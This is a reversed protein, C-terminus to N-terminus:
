APLDLLRELAARDEGDTAVGFRRELADLAESATLEEVLERGDATSVNVRRGM